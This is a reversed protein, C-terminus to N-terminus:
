QARLSQPVLEYLDKSRGLRYRQFFSFGCRTLACREASLHSAWQQVALSNIRQVAVKLAVNENVTSCTDRSFISLDATWDPGTATRSARTPWPRGAPGADRYLGCHSEKKDIASSSLSSSLSSFSSSLPSRFASLPAPLTRFHGTVSGVLLSHTKNNSFLLVASSDRISGIRECDHGLVIEDCYRWTRCGHGDALLVFIIFTPLCLSFPASNWAPGHM